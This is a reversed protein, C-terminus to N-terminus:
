EIKKAQMQIYIMMQEALIKQGQITHQFLEPNAEAKKNKKTNIINEVECRSLILFDGSPTDLKEADEMEKRRLLAIDGSKSGTSSLGYKERLKKIILLHEDDIKKLSCNCTPRASNIRNIM